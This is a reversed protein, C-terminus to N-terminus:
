HISNFIAQYRRESCPKSLDLGLKVYVGWTHVLYSFSFAYFYKETAINTQNSMQAGLGPTGPDHTTVPTALLQSLLRSGFSGPNAERGAFVKSFLVKKGEYM